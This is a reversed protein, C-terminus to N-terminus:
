GPLILRRSANALCDTDGALVKSGIYVTNTRAPNCEFEPRELQTKRSKLAWFGKNTDACVIAVTILKIRPHLIGHREVLVPDPIDIAVLETQAYIGLRHDVTAVSRLFMLLSAGLPKRVACIVHGWTLNGIRASVNLNGILLQKFPQQLVETGEPQQAYWDALPDQQPYRMGCYSFLAGHNFFIWDDELDSLTFKSAEAPPPLTEATVTAVKGTPQPLKGHFEGKVRVHANGLDDTM